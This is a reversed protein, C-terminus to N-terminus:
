SDNRTAFSDQLTALQKKLEYLSQFPQLSLSCSPKWSQTCFLAMEAIIIINRSIRPTATWEPLNNEMALAPQASSLQKNYPTSLHNSRLPQKVNFNWDPGSSKATIYRTTARQLHDNISTGSYTM